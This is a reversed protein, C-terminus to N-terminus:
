FWGKSRGVPVLSLGTGILLTLLVNSVFYPFIALLVGTVLVLADQQKKGYFVFASGIAGFILGLLLTM